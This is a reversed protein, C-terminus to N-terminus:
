RFRICRKDFCHIEERSTLDTEEKIYRKFQSELDMWWENSRKRLDLVLNPDYGEKAIKFASPTLEHNYSTCANSTEKM